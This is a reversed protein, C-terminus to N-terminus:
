NFQGKQQMDFNMQEAECFNLIKVVLNMLNQKVFIM